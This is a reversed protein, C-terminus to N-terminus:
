PSDLQAARQLDAEAGAEDGSARKAAARRKYQESTEKLKIASSWDAIAHQWDKLREYATARNEYASEFMPKLQIAKNLDPLAQEPHGLENYAVGRGNYSEASLPDVEAASSWDVIARQWDQLRLYAIARHQYAQLYKPDIQIARNLDALAEDPHGLETRASGRNMYHPATPKLEVARNYDEFAREHLGQGSYAMGRNNYWDANSPNLRIAKGFDEVAEPFRGRQYHAVGRAAYAQATAEGGPSEEAPQSAPALPSTAPKLVHSLGFAIYFSAALAVIGAGIWLFPSRTSRRVPAPKVPANVPGHAPKDPTVKVLESVATLVDSFESNRVDGRWGSLDAAEIRGFGFPPDVKELLVPVLCGRAVARDAEERVWRSKASTASWLVIVCSAEELARGIVDDWPQGVPVHRDWFVSFGCKALADAMMRASAVDEKAYSLFVQAVM